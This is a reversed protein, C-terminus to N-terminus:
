GDRVAQLYAAGRPSLRYGVELSQTLGINKLKRIDLKLAQKERGLLDALDGARRGPHAAILELVARTWAGHSSRADLQALRRGIQEAQEPSLDDDAGLAIRPDPGAWRVRIRYTPHDDSGRLAARVDAASRQGAAAADAERIAMPDIPEVSEVAIVGAVTRVTDGPRVNPKAWRRFVQTVTGEAVGRAVDQSLIM